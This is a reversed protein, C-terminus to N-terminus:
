VVNQVFQKELEALVDSRLLTLEFEIRAADGPAGYGDYGQVTGHVAASVWRLYLPKIAEHGVNFMYHAVGRNDTMGGHARHWDVIARALRRRRETNWVAPRTPMNYGTGSSMSGM